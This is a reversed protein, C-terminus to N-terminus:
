LFAISVLGVFISVGFDLDSVMEIWEGNIMLPDLQLQEFNRDEYDAYNPDWKITHENLYIATRDWLSVTDRFSM